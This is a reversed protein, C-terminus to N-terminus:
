APDARRGAPVSRALRCAWGPDPKGVGARRTEARSCSRSSAIPCRPRRRLGRGPPQKTLPAAPLELVACTVHVQARTYRSPPERGSPDPAFQEVIIATRAAGVAAQLRPATREAAADGDAAWVATWYAFAATQEATTVATQPVIVLVVDEPGDEGARPLTRRRTRWSTRPAGRAWGAWSRRAM